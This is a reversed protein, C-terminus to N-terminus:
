VLPKLNQIIDEVQSKRNMGDKIFLASQYAWLLTINCFIIVASGGEGREKQITLQSIIQKQQDYKTTYIKQKFGSNSQTKVWM